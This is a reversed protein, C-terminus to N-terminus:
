GDHVTQNRHLSPTTRAVLLGYDVGCLQDKVM